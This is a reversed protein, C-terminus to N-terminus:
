IRENKVAKRILERAVTSRSTGNKAALADIKQLIAVDVLTSLIAKYTKTQPQM